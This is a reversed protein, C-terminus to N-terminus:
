PWALVVQEVGAHVETTARRTFGTAEYTRLAAENSAATVVRVSAIGRSGLEATAAAVLARGAGHGRAAPAVAVALIEADPLTPAAGDAPAPEGGGMGYRLTEWVHRPARAIAPLAAVGARLGDRVLFERYLEGTREAVAIFGEIEDREGMVLLFSGRHRAIRTYLRVLFPTGLTVLFGESLESAHLAAVARADAPTGLRIPTPLPRDSM